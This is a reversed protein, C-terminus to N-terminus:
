SIKFVVTKASWMTTCTRILKYHIYRTGNIGDTHNASQIVTNLVIFWKTWRQKDCFLIVYKRITLLFIVCVIYIHICVYVHRLIYIYLQRPLVSWVAEYNWPWIYWSVPITSLETKEIQYIKSLVTAWFQFYTFIKLL